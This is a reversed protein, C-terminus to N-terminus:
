SQLVPFCCSPHWIWNPTGDLLASSIRFERPLPLVSLVLGALLTRMSSAAQGSARRKTVCAELRYVIDCLHALPVIIGSRNTSDGTACPVLLFAPSLVGCLGQLPLSSQSCRIDPYMVLTLVTELALTHLCFVESCDGASQTFGDWVILQGPNILQASRTFALSQVVSPM